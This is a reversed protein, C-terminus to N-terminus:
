KNMQKGTNKIDYGGLQTVKNGFEKSRIINLVAQIPDSSLLKEPIVLDYQEKTLYVFDLGLMHAAQFIGLGADASGSLVAIATDAHTTVEQTYGNLNEPNIDLRKLEADLFARTGSGQQRNIITIDSRALDKIDSIDLPNGQKVILGLQRYVLNIIAIDIDPLYRPLFPQNYTGTEPDFLHCSAIHCMGRSLAILGQLSGVHSVSMSFNPYGRNLEQCLIGVTFDDSGMVVIHNHLETSKAKVGTHTQANNIIWDDILKKPFTWKGTIRTAPIDTEKILKYVQKENINLYEAVDKTSMMEKTMVFFGM